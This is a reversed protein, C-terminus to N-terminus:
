LEDHSAEEEVHAPEALPVQADDEVAVPVPPELSNKANAEVFEVLSELTRDGEYDIFDPSGARKFKITPFGSVHFPVSTPLDNETAEM